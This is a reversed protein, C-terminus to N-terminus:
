SNRQANSYPYDQFFTFSHGDSAQRCDEHSFINNKYIRFTFNAVKYKIQNTGEHTPRFLPGTYIFANSCRGPCIRIKQGGGQQQEKPQIPGGFTPWSDPIPILEGKLIALRSFLIAIKIGSL